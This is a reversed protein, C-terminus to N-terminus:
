PIRLTLNLSNQSKEVLHIKSWDQLLILKSFLTFHYGYQWRVRSNESQFHAPNLNRPNINVPQLFQVGFNLFKLFM